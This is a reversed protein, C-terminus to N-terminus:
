SLKRYFLGPLVFLLLGTLWNWLSSQNMSQISCSLHGSGGLSFGYAEPDFGANDEALEPANEDLEETDDGEPTSTPTPSETHEDGCDLEFFLVEGPEAKANPSPVLPAQIDGINGYPPPQPTECPIYHAQATGTWFLAIISFALLFNKM